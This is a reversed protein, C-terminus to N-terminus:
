YYTPAVRKVALRESATSIMQTFVRVLLRAGPFLKYQPPSRSTDLTQFRLGPSGAGPRIGVASFVVDADLSCM